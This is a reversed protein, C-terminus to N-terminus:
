NALFGAARRFVQLFAEDVDQSDAQKVVPFPVEHTYEYPLDLLTITKSACDHGLAQVVGHYPIVKDLALSVGSIRERMQRFTSTRKVKENDPTLMSYFSAMVEDGTNVAIKEAWFGTQYYEFLQEYSKKDMISRSEGCMSNFISGGCFMFLKSESFYDNPNNLFLVQSLFAGISYAFVDFKTKRDLLPHKGAKIDGILKVIDDFSQRGSSYFRQPNHSLRESLAVNAFSLSRDNGHLTRRLDLIKQLFRPNSWSHPSRNVHYAIPFLLVAKGTHKCLYEAWPLYKSWNRENLGHLLLIVENHRRVDSPVFVPYEFVENEEVSDSIIFSNMEGSVGTFSRHSKFPFFVVSIGANEIETNKGIKFQSSLEQFRASYSM